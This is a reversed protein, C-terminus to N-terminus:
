PLDKQFYPPLSRYYEQLATLSSSPQERAVKVTLYFDQRAAESRPGEKNLKEAMQVGRECADNVCPIENVISLAKEYEDSTCWNWPINLYEMVARSREDVMDIPNLQSVDVYEDSQTLLSHDGKM